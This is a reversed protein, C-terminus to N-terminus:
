REVLKLEVEYTDGTHNTLDVEPTEITTSVGETAFRLPARPVRIEFSTDETPVMYGPTLPEGNAYVRVRLGAWEGAHRLFRAERGTVGDVFRGRLLIPHVVPAEKPTAEPPVYATPKEATDGCAAFSVLVVLALALRPM